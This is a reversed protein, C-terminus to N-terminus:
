NFPLGITGPCGQALVVPPVPPVDNQHLTSTSNDYWLALDAAVSEFLPPSVDLSSADELINGTDSITCLADSPCYEDRLTEDSCDHIPLGLRSNVENHAQCLYNRLNPGSLCADVPSNNALYNRFHGACDACPLMAPITNLHTVCNVIDEHKPSDEYAEAATHLFIWLHPGWRSPNIKRSM